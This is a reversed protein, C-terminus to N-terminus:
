SGALWMVIPVTALALLTSVGVAATVEAEAVRYRQAFLYVNAGIPLAAAVVIVTRALGDVGLLTALVWVLAPHLLNKVLAMGLAARWQGALPSHALTVGVVLLAVPAFAQGLLLLTKDVLPPLGWGLHAWLLGLLIPAPVPHWLSKFLGQALTRLLTPRAGGRDAERAVALEIALTAATLLVASHLSVLALQTVLGEPGYALGILTIGIMVANSYTNAIALVTARRDCRFWVLTAAFILGAAAFYAFVPGLDFAETPALALTRFLLAPALLYFVLQSIDKVAAAGIWQRRGALVGLLILVVVPLLATVVPHSV